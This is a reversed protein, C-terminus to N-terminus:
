RGRRALSAPAAALHHERVADFLMAPSPFAQPGRRVVYLKHGEVRWRCESRRMLEYDVAPQDIVDPGRTADVLRVTKTTREVVLIAHVEHEPTTDHHPIYYADVEAIFPLSKAGLSLEVARADDPGEFTLIEVQAGTLRELLSPWTAAGFLM